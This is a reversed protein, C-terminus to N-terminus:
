VKLTTSLSLGSRHLRDMSQSQALYANRKRMAESKGLKVPAPKNGDYNESFWQNVQKRADARVRKQIDTGSLKAATKKQKAPTRKIPNMLRKAELRVKFAASTNHSREHQNNGPTFYKGPTRKLVPSAKKAYVLKESEWGVNLPTSASSTELNGEELQNNAPTLYKPRYKNFTDASATAPRDGLAIKEKKTQKIATQPRSPTTPM